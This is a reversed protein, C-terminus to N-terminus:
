RWQVIDNYIDTLYDDKEKELQFQMQEWIDTLDQPSAELYVTGFDPDQIKIIIEAPLTGIVFKNEM